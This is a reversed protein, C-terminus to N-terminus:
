LRKDQRNRYSVSSSGNDKKSRGSRVYLGWTYCMKLVCKVGEIEVENIQDKFKTNLNPLGCQHNYSTPPNTIM